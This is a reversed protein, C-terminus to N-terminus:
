WFKVENLSMQPWKPEKWSMQLSVWKLENLCMTLEYLIMKNYRPDKKTLKPWEPGNQSMQVSRLENLSM